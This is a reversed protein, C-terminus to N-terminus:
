RARHPANLAQASAPRDLADGLERSTDAAWASVREAYGEPLLRAGTEALPSALRSHPWGSFEPWFSVSVAVLVLALLAGKAAGFVSGMVRDNTARRQRDEKTLWRSSEFQAWLAMIRLMFSVSALIMLFAVLKAHVPSDTVVGLLRAGMAPALTASVVVGLGIGAMSMVQGLLGTRWGTWIQFLFFAVVLGDVLLGM